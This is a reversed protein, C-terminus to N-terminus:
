CREPHDNRVQNRARFKHGLRPLVTRPVQTNCIILQDDHDYLSFGESITEIAATLQARTRTSEDTAAPLEATRETVREQLTDRARRLDAENANQQVQMENFASVVEGIEDRSTWDVPIREGHQRSQHISKLLRELPIGITRRNAVVAIAVVSLLLLAALGAVVLLRAESEAQVRADTLAIALRGIIEPIIDSAYTIDREAFFEQRDIGDVSGVAGIPNNAEDYVIAGLVDTDIAIAALILEIQEDAVNWLSESLVASQIEVLEELKDHLKRNAERRAALESIGFVIVTSLLVLPVILALFKARLSRFVFVEITRAM